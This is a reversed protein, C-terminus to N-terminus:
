QNMREPPQRAPLIVHFFSGKGEISQATIEGLHNRAIKRCLALGIGTGEYSLKTHLRKFIEFVQDLYKENFGIGNDEVTICYYELDQRLSRIKKVERSDLLRSSIKIIPDENEKRFKLGNSLLNYFLQNMQQTSAEIEPLQEIQVQARTEQIKLEFDDVVDRVVDGLSIRVFTNEVKLLRSFNLLDQILHSMRQAASSIKELRMADLGERFQPNSNLLDSYVLIKRLPEQLDHSAVYAYQELEYNSRELKQNAELLQETRLFVREELEEEIRKSETIDLLTGTIRYPKQEKDFFVHGTARHWRQKRDDIGTIEYELRLNEATQDQLAKSMENRILDRGNEDVANILEQPTPNKHHNSIGFLELTRPSCSIEGTIPYYDWTGLEASNLAVRWREEAERLKNKSEIIETVDVAM